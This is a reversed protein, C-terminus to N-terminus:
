PRLVLRALCLKVPTRSVFKVEQRYYAEIGRM